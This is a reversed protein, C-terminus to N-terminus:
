RLQRGGEKGREELLHGKAASREKKRGAGSMSEMRVNEGKSCADLCNHLLIRM